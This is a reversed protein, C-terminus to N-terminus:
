RRSGLRVPLTARRALAPNLAASDPFLPIPAGGVMHPGRAVGFVVDLSRSRFDLLESPRRRRHLGQRLGAAQHLRQRAGQHQRTLVGGWSRRHDVGSGDAAVATQGLGEGADAQQGVLEAEGVGGFGEVGNVALAGSEMGVMAGPCHAQCHFAVGALLGDGQRHAPQIVLVGKFCEM